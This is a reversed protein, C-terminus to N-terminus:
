LGLLAQAREIVLGLVALSVVDTPDASGSTGALAVQLADRVAVCNGVTVAADLNNLAVNLQTAL